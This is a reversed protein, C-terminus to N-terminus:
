AFINDGGASLQKWYCAFFIMCSEKQVRCFYFLSETVNRNVPFGAKLDDSAGDNAMKAFCYKDLCFCLRPLGIGGM